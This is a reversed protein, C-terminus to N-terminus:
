ALPKTLEAEIARNAIETMPVKRGTKRSEKISRDQLKRHLPTPLTIMFKQGLDAVKRTQKKM